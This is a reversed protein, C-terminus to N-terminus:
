LGHRRRGPPCRGAADGVGGSHGAAAQRGGSWGVLGLHGLGLHNALVRTDAAWGAMRPHPDPDSRGYGPRDVTVLRVGAALTASLDPCLLRSGPSTGLLLVPSGEPEGWIAYALARGDPLTVTRDVTPAISPQPSSASASM